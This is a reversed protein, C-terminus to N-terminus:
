IASSDDGRSGVAISLSGADELALTAQNTVLNFLVRLVDGDHAGRRM